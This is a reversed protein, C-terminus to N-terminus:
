FDEETAKTLLETLKSAIEKPFYIATLFLDLYGPYIKLDLFSKAFSMAAIEALSAIQTTHTYPGLKWLPVRHETVFSVREQEQFYHFLEHAIVIEQWCDDKLWDFREDCFSATTIQKNVAIKKPSEFYGISTFQEDVPLEEFVIAIGLEDAIETLSYGPYRIQLEESLEAGSLKAKEIVEHVTDKPIKSYFRDESLKLQMQTNQPLKAVAAILECIEM